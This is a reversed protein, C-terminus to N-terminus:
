RTGDDPRQTLYAAVLTALIVTTFAMGVLGELVAMTRAVPTLPTIDGYGITLQTIYSFYLLTPFDQGIGAGELGRISGPRVTELLGYAFAWTLGVMIYSALAGALVDGTGRTSRAVGAIMRATAYALFVLSMVIGLQPPLGTLGALGDASTLVCLTALVLAIRRQRGATGSAAIAVLPVLLGCIALARAVSPRSVSQVFPAVVIILLLLLLVVIFRPRPLLSGPTPLADRHSRAVGNM